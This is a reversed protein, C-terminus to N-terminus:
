FSTPFQDSREVCINKEEDQPIGIQTINDAAWFTSLIVETIDRSTGFNSTFSVSPLFLKM